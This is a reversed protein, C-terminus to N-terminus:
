KNRRLISLDKLLQERMWSLRRAIEDDKELIQGISEKAFAYISSFILSFLAAVIVIIARKPKSKYIAIRPTDLIQLNPTDKAEEVKAQEHAKTLFEYIRNQVEVERYLRVYELGRDPVTDFPVFLNENQRNDGNAGPAGFKLELLKKRLSNLKDQTMVVEQHDPALYKRKTRLEVELAYMMGQIEAANTIAARTQEPIDILGYKEQFNKLSEEAYRLAKSNQTLRSEIFLRDNRAKQVKLQTYISDLAQVMTTAMAAARKPQKDLVSMVIQGNDGLVIDLNDGLAKLTREIDKKEYVNVLDYEEILLEMLTRSALIAMFTQTEGSGRSLGLGSIPLKSVMSALDFGPFDSKPPMVVATSRYWKPLLLSVIIALLSVVLFNIIILRRWKFLVYIFDVPSVKRTEMKEPLM